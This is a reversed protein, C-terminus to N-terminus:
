EKDKGDGATALVFTKHGFAQEGLLLHNVHHGIHLDDLGVEVVLFGLFPLNLWVVGDLYLLFVIHLQRAFIVALEELMIADRVADERLVDPIVGFMRRHQFFDHVRHHVSQRPLLRLGSPVVAFLCVTDVEAMRLLLDFFFM